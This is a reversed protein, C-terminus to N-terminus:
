RVLSDSGPRQASTSRKRRRRRQGPHPLPPHPAGAEVQYQSRGEALGRAVQIIRTLHTSKVMFEAAGLDLCRTRLAPYPYNTLVVVVHSRDQEALTSLVEVGSMGPLMLDLIILDPQCSELMELALEGSEAEYVASIGPAKRFAATLRQRVSGADEVVMVRM